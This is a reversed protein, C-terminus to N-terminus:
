DSFRSRKGSKRKETAQQNINFRLLLQQQFQVRHRDYHINCAAKCEVYKNRLLYVYIDTRNYIKAQYFPDASHLASGFENYFPLQNGGAYFVDHLGLFRWEMTFEGLFGVPRRWIGNGRNRDMSILAGTKFQLSDFVTQHSFNGGIYPNFMINDIVNMDGPANKTKAFHTVSLFWGAFAQKYAYRGSSAMVFVERDKNTQKSRWDIYAEVYGAKSFYQILAGNINPNFYLISDYMLASPYEQALLRRPFAGFAAKLGPSNDRYYVTWDVKRDTHSGFEMLWSLGGMLQHEERLQVGIEPSLRTGFFTQPVQYPPKFERNDFFGTFDVDWLFKQADARLCTGLFVTILILARLIKM